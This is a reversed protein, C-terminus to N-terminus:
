VVDLIRGLDDDAVPEITLRKRKIKGLFGITKSSKVGVQKRDTSETIRKVRM